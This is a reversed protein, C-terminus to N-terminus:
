DNKISHLYGENKIFNSNINKLEPEKELLVLVDNMSFNNNNKYLKSYIKKVFEFDEKNDVSWKLDNLKIKTNNNVILIKNKETNKWIYPTVHERESKLKSENWANELADFTFCETDLGNPYTKSDNSAYDYKGSIFEELVKSSENSDILPCDATIRIIINVNYKKSAQYFRDLVDDTKGRFSKLGFSEAIEIIKDDINRRTTAIIIEDVDMKKIRNIVHWLMSKGEINMLIKNPLRRSDTRAQIIICKKNKM